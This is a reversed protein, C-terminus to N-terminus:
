QFTIMVGIQIGDLTGDFVFDDDDYDIDIFRYGGTLGIRDNFHYTAGLSVSWAFDADVGGGVDGELLYEWDGRRPQWSLGVYPDAFDQSASADPLNVFDIEVDLEIYRAGAIIWVEEWAAPRYGAFAEIVFEDIELEITDAPSNIEDGLEVWLFNTAVLWQDGRAEFVFAAGADIFDFYDSFSVDVDRTTGAPGIEADIGATWLYPLLRYRVDDAFAAPTHFAGFLLSIGLCLRGVFATFTSSM